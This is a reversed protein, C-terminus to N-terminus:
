SIHQRSGNLQVCAGHPDVNLPHKHWGNGVEAAISDVRSVSTFALVSPGAGSIVAPVGLKRLRALLEASEPMAPARYDQHLRDETAELLV